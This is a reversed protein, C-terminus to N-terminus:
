NDQLDIWAALTIIRGLVVCGLLFSSLFLVHAWGAVKVVVLAPLSAELLLLWVPFSLVMMQHNGTGWSFGVRVIKREECVSADGVQPDWGLEVWYFWPQMLWCSRTFSPFSSSSNTERRKRHTLRRKWVKWKGKVSKRM